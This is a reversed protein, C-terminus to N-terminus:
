MWTSRSFEFRAIKVAGTKFDCKCCEPVGIELAGPRQRLLEGCSINGHKRLQRGTTATQVSRLLLVLLLPSFISDRKSAKHAGSVLHKVRWHHDRFLAALNGSPLPPCRTLLAKRSARSNTRLGAPM